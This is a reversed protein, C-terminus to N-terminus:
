FAILLLFFFFEADKGGIKKKKTSFHSLFVVFVHKHFFSIVNTGLMYPLGTRMSLLKYIGLCFLLRGVHKKNDDGFFYRCFNRLNVLFFYPSLIFLEEFLIYPMFLIYCLLCHLAFMGSM